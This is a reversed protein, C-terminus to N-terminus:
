FDTIKASVIADLSSTASSFPVDCFIASIKGDVFSVVVQGSQAVMYNGGLAVATVRVQNQALDSDSCSQCIEYVATSPTEPNWFTISINIGTGGAIIEFYDTNTTYVSNFTYDNINEFTATNNLQNCTIPTPNVEINVVSAESKCIGRIVQVKYDGAAASTANQIEPNQEFSSFNNPGTWQYGADAGADATSLQITGGEIIPSNGTATTSPLICTIPEKNECGSIFVAGIFSVLLIYIRKKNRM